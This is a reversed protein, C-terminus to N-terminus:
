ARPPHVIVVPCVAYAVTEHSTSGLLLGAFGGRGRSGLVLLAPKVAAAEKLLAQTSRGRRVIPRVKISPDKELWPALQADLEAREKLDLQARDIELPYAQLFGDLPEDDWCRVALLEVGRLGAEEFAFALASESGSSGDLGVLVPADPAPPTSGHDHPDTRIVAVPAPNHSVIKQAVSGLLTESALGQGHSGVVVLEAGASAKRLSASPTDMSVTSTMELDPHQARIEAMTRKLDEEASLRPADFLEPPLVAGPGAYGVPILYSEILDLSCGRRQAEDAAWRAAATAAASGDVGVVVRKKSSESM